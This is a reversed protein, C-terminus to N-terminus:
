LGLNRCIVMSTLINRRFNDGQPGLIEDAQQNTYSNNDTYKYTLVAIDSGSRAVITIQVSRIDAPNAVPTALVNLDRDLYVFNLADINEAITQLGGGVDRGLHCPSGDAVGDGDADNTLAYRIQENADDTVGDGFNVEDAEDITGDNDNDIGDTEGGTIDMTFDISNANAIQIGATSNGTPDYGAMQVEGVMYYMALRISQQMDIVSQQTMYARTQSHYVTYIAAMAISAISMTILLEILTFGKLDKITM